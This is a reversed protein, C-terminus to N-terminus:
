GTQKGAILRRWWPRRDQDRQRAAPLAATQAQQILIHLEQVERRRAALEEELIAITKRLAEIEGAPGSGASGAPGPAPAAAANEDPLTIMYMEGHDTPVKRARLEGRAIRRRITESSVGLAQAAENITLEAM